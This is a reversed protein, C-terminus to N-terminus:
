TTASSRMDEVAKEVSISSKDYAAVILPRRNGGFFAISNREDHIPM